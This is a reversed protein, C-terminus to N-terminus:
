CHGLGAAGADREEEQGFPLRLAAVHCVHCLCPGCMGMGVSMSMCHPQRQLMTHSSPTPTPKHLGVM